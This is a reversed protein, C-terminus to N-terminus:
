LEDVHSADNQIIIGLNHRIAESSIVHEPGQSSIHTMDSLNCLVKEAIDYENLPESSSQQQQSSSIIQHIKNSPQCLRDYQAQRLQILLKANEDLKLDLQHQINGNSHNNSELKISDLTAIHNSDNSQQETSPTNRSQKTISSEHKGNTAASLFRDVYSLALDGTDKVYDIMSVAYQASFESGYTHILLDLEDKSISTFSSDYQPAHSSFPGYDLFYRPLLHSRKESENVIPVPHPHYANASPGGASSPMNSLEGITITRTQSPHQSLDDQNIFRLSTTGNTRQYLLKYASMPRRLSLKERACQGAHQAQSLIEEPSLEEDDEEDGLLTSLKEYYRPLKVVIKSKRQVSDADNLSVDMQENSNVLQENNTPNISDIHFGFERETLRSFCEVTRRLNLLKDKNMLKNGTASLKKAAQHYVTEPRNYKMANECLLEFDTRFELINLYEDQNIKKRMTFFDMPRTIVQSYGPALQDTVPYQFFGEKDKRTLLRLLHDLCVNLNANDDNSSKIAPRQLSKSRDPVFQHQVFHHQDSSNTSTEPQQSLSNDDYDISAHGSHNSSDENEFVPQGGVSFRPRKTGRRSM